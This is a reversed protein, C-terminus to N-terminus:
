EEECQEIKPQGYIEKLRKCVLPPVLGSIDGGLSAAEKIITSSIYFWKYDTMLFVSQIERDLRRNMLALQFEYEFDSLARIGRLIAKANRSRAYDVTLGDFAEVEVNDVGELVQKIMRIREEESFLNNKQPNSGLAVIVKDFIKLGRKILSLHGNTIPDFSGPYVAISSM